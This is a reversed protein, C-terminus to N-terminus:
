AASAYLRNQTAALRRMLKLDSESLQLAADAWLDVVERLDALAVRSAVRSARMANVMGPHRRSSRAIFRRVAEVGEGPAALESVVGLEYMEEATYSRNSLIMRDALAAGLRRSLLVHAGMGPFLGFMVEPLGFVTGREAIIFDFSLLAEFGGGLAQGQVLGVTLMPLDLANHNRHLIEVCRYGYAALGRRDGALILQCFLELDGGFCFVGRSRSGLILYDLPVGTPGFHSAILDQWVEFDGLMAPTFSPRGIPRMYSWLARTDAEYLVDLEDLRLLREPVRLRERARDVLLESAADAPTDFPMASPGDDYPMAAPAADAEGSASYGEGSATYGLDGPLRDM